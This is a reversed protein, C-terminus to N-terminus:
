CKSVFLRALRVIVRFIVEVYLKNKNEVGKTKIKSLVHLTDFHLIFYSWNFFKPESTFCFM